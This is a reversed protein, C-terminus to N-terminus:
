RVVPPESPDGPPDQPLAALTKSDVFRRMIYSAATTLVTKIVSFLIIKWEPVDGWSNAGALIPTILVVLAVMIDIALGQLFTRFARNKADSKTIALARRAVYETM